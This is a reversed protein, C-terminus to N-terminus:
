SQNMKKITEQATPNASQYITLTNIAKELNMLTGKVVYAEDLEFAGSKTAKNLANNLIGITSKLKDTDFIDVQLGEM